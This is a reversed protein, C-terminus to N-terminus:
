SAEQVPELQKPKSSRSWWGPAENVRRELRDQLWTGRSGYSKEVEKISRCFSDYIKALQGDVEDDTLRHRCEFVSAKASTEALLDMLAEAHKHFDALDKKAEKKSLSM